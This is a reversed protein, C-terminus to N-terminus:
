LVLSIDYSSQSYFLEGIIRNWLYVAIQSAFGNLKLLQRGGKKSKMKDAFICVLEIYEERDNYACTVNCTIGESYSSNVKHNLIFNVNLFFRPELKYYWNLWLVILLYYLWYIFELSYIFKEYNLTTWSFHVKSISIAM